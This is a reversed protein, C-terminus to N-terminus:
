LEAKLAAPDLKGNPGVPLAGRWEIRAPQMHPPLVRKLHSRLAAEDGTGGAFLVIAQGTRDDDVGFAAVDSVGEVLVVTRASGALEGVDAGDRGAAADVIADRLRSM